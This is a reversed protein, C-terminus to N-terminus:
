AMGEGINIELAPKGANTANLRWVGTSTTISAGPKMLLMIEQFDRLQSAALVISTRAKAVEAGLDIRGFNRSGVTVLYWDPSSERRAKREFLLRNGGFL